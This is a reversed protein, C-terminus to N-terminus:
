NIGRGVEWSLRQSIAEVDRKLRVSRGERGGERVGERSLNETSCECIGMSTGVLSDRQFRDKLPPSLLSHLWRAPSVPAPNDTAKKSNAPDM